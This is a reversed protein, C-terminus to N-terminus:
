TQIQTRSSSYEVFDLLGYKSLFIVYFIDFHKYIIIKKSM